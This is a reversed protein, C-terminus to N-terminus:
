DRGWGPNGGIDMRGFDAGFNTHRNLTRMQQQRAAESKRWVAVISRLRWKQVSLPTPSNLMLAALKFKEAHEQQAEHGTAESYLLDRLRDNSGEFVLCIYAKPPSKPLRERLEPQYLVKYM